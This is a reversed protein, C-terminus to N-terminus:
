LIHSYSKKFLYTKLNHKFTDVSESVKIHLPLTNWLSPAAVAFSRDGYTKLRSRECKLLHKSGSRLSRTPAYEELLETIYLPAQNNLAKFTFLLIKFKIRMDVPLWHLHYLIPTIHSYKSTGTVLRAATNQISQLRQIMSNPLGYLLSNCYDMKSTVFAHIIMKTTEQNLYKRIRRINHLHYYASKCIATVQKEYSLTNDLIVGVNKASNSTQIDDNGIKISDICPRPTYRSHFVLLETKDDNLKLSNSHMWARIDQVCTETTTRASQTQINCKPNFVLFIQSDDAYLHLQM